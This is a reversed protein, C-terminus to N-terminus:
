SPEKPPSVIARIDSRQKSTLREFIATYLEAKTKVQNHLRLVEASVNDSILASKFATVFPGYESEPVGSTDPKGSQDGWTKQAATGDDDEDGVVVVVAQLSIRKAYTAAGAVSWADRKSIPVTFPGFAMHQGSKHLLHTVCGIGDDTNVLAQIVSIGEASLVPIVANRVAAFTAFKSRFAPNTGDFQPNKMKGQAVALAAALENIEASQEM